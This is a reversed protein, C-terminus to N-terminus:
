KRFKKRGAAVLGLLGSGLLILTGPEPVNATLNSVVINGGAGPSYYVGSFVQMQTMDGTFSLGAPYIDYPFPGGFGTQVGNVTAFMTGLGSDIAHYSIVIDFIGGTNFTGGDVAGPAVAQFPDVGDRDSWIGYNDNSGFPAVVTGPATADYDVEGRGGSASLNHKDMLSQTTPSAALNGVLSTMWGGAGGQYTNFPGPNFNGAGVQRIGVEVYPTVFPANQTVGSMNITYSLTLDGQTLNFIDSQNSAAFSGTYTITGYNIATANATSLCLVLVLASM